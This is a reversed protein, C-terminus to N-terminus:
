NGIHTPLHILMNITVALNNPDVLNFALYQTFSPCIRSIRLRNSTLGILEGEIRSFVFTGILIICVM